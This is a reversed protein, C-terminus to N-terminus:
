KSRQCVELSSEHGARKRVSGMCIRRRDSRQLSVSPSEFVILILACLPHKPGILTIDGSSWTPHLVSYSNAEKYAPGHSGFFLGYLSGRTRGFPSLVSSPENPVKLATTSVDM